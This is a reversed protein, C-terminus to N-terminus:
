RVIVYYNMGYDTGWKQSTSTFDSLSGPDCLADVEADKRPQGELHAFLYTIASGNKTCTAKMYAQVPNGRYTGCIGGSDYNCNLPDKFNTDRLVGAEQLCTAMSKPYVGLDSPGANVWGNGNGYLGCGSGTGMFNNKQLAYASFGAALQSMDSKRENDRTRQQYGPYLVMTIAALIAIVVMVALLEMLTFGREQNSHQLINMGGKDMVM